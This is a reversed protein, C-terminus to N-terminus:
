TRTPAAACCCRRWTCAERRCPVCSRRQATRRRRMSTPAMISCGRRRRRRASPSPATCRRTDAQMRAFHALPRLALPRMVVRLHTLSLAGRRSRVDVPSGAGVILKVLASNGSRAAAHLPFEGSVSAEVAAGAGFELLVKASALHGAVCAVFLASDGTENPVNQVAASAILRAVRLRPPLAVLFLLFAGFVFSLLLVVDLCSIMLLSGLCSCRLSYFFCCFSVLTMAMMLGRLLEMMM